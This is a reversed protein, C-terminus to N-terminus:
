SKDGIDGDFLKNPMVAQEREMSQYGELVVINRM